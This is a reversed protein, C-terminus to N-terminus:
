KEIKSMIWLYTKEMAAAVVDPNKDKELAYLHGVSQAAICAAEFSKDKKPFSKGGANTKEKPDWGFFKDGKAVVDMELTDGVKATALIDKLRPNNQKGDKVSTLIGIERGASDKINFWDGSQKIESIIVKEM